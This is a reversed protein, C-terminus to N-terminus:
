RKAGRALTTRIGAIQKEAMRVSEAFQVLASGFPGQAAAHPVKDTPSRLAEEATRMDRELRRMVVVLALSAFAAVGVFVAFAALALERGVAHAAHDIKERSYRLALYGVTLGFNNKISIGVASEAGGDVFWDADGAHRAAEIWVNPVTRLARLPDTGYLPRGSTDFVKIGLIVDDTAREREMLAPLTDLDAFSLGVALSAQISNEISRGTVVLRGKVIQDATSRYKFYNLFTAMGVAFLCVVVAVVIMRIRTSEM